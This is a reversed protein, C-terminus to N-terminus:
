LSQFASHPFWHFHYFLLRTLLLTGNPINRCRRGALFLRCDQTRVVLMRKKLCVLGVILLELSQRQRSCARKVQVPIKCVRKRNPQRSAADRMDCGKGTGLM